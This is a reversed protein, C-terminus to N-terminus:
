HHLVVDETKVEKTMSIGFEGAIKRAHANVQTIIETQEMGKTEEFLQIRIEDLQNEYNNM